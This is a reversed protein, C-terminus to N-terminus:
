RDFILDVPESQTLLQDLGVPIIEDENAALVNPFQDFLPGFMEAVDTKMIRVMRPVYEVILCNSREITKAGGRLVYPEYGEVDIKIMSIPQDESFHANAIEDLTRVPVQVSTGSGPMVISHAGRNSAKYVNLSMEAQHDGLAMALIEVNSSGNRSVNKRLLKLNMPEPEFALVRGRSGALKSFLCTYYGLNAGVDIFNMGEDGFRQMVWESLRREWYGTKYIVRGVVDRKYTDFVFGNLDDKAIVRDSLLNLTHLFYLFDTGRKKNKM